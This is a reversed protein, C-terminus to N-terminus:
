LACQGSLCDNEKEEGGVEEGIPLANYGADVVLETILSGVQIDAMRGFHNLRLRGNRDFLILSPTGQLQWNQMTQPIHSDTTSKDVAIPFSIKFESVFARLANVTMVDHHEFVSHLGIVQVKDKPFSEDILSAQPLGHTVCGPCLMQFAHIVVVKGKFDSLSIPRETNLWESAVINSNIVEQM